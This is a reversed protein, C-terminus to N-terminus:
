APSRSLRSRALPLLKTHSRVVKSRHHLGLGVMLPHCVDYREAGRSPRSGDQARTGEVAAEPVACRHRGSAPGEDYVTELSGDLDRHLVRLANSSLLYM